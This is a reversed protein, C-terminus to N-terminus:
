LHCSARYATLGMVFTGTGQSSVRIATHGYGIYRIETHRFAFTPIERRKATGFLCPVDIPTAIEGPGSQASEVPCRRQLRVRGSQRAAVRPGDHRLAAQAFDRGEALVAM